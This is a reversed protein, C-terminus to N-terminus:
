HVGPPSPFGSERGAGKASRAGFPTTPWALPNPDCPVIAPLALLRLRMAAAFETCRTAGATSGIRALSLEVTPFRFDLREGRSQGAVQVTSPTGFFHLARHTGDFRTALVQFSGLLQQGGLLSLQRSLILKQSLLSDAERFGYGRVALLQGVVLLAAASRSLVCRARFRCDSSSAARCAASSRIRLSTARDCCSTSSTRSAVSSSQARNHPVIAGAANVWDIAWIRSFSASSNRSVRVSIASCFASTCDSAM